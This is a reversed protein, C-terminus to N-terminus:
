SPEVVDECLHDGKGRRRLLIKCEPVRSVRANVWLAQLIEQVVLVVNCVVIEGLVVEVLWVV